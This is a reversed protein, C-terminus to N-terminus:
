EDEPELGNRRMCEMYGDDYGCDYSQKHGHSAGVVILACVPFGFAAVWFYMSSIYHIIIM